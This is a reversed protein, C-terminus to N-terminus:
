KHTVRQLRSHGLHAKLESGRNSVPPIPEGSNIKYFCLAAQPLPLALLETIM